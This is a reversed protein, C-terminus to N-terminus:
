AVVHEFERVAFDRLTASFDRREAEAAFRILVESAIMVAFLVTNRALPYECVDGAADSPVKYHEDWIVECYDAFLGVHLCATGTARCHDQVLQRSASNDFADIVVDAGRLFKSANKATLSQTVAEIEVEVNRFITNRVIEAKRVGVEALGYLQTNINHAEVRDRDIVRLKRFGQRVLNDALLSGVAGAGCLVIQKEALQALVEATRYETEHLYNTM